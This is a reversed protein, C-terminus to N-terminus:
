DVLFPLCLTECFAKCLELLVQFYANFGSTLRLLPSGTGCIHFWTALQSLDWHLFFKFHTLNAVLCSLILLLLNPM